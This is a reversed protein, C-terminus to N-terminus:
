TTVDTDVGLDVRVEGAEDWAPYVKIGCTAPVATADGTRVSFRAGHLPCEVEDGDLLGDTLPFNEHSCNNEFAFWHGNVRCVALPVPADAVEYMTNDPVATVPCAVIIRAM